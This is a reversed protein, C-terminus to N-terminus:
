GRCDDIVRAPEPWAPLILPELGEAEVTFRGRSFAIEDLLPDDAAIAGGIPLLRAGFTTRLRLPASAGARSVVVQRRGSDCSLSFREAGASGFRAVSGGSVESYTWDGPTLPVDPSHQQGPEQPAAEPASRPLPAPRAPPPREPAPAPAPNSACASLLFAAAAVPCIWGNM